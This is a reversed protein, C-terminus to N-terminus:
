VNTNWSDPAVADISSEVIAAVVAAVVISLLLGGAGLAISQMRTEPTKNREFRNRVAVGVTLGTMRAAAWRAVAFSTM